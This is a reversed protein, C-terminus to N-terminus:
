SKEGIVFYDYLGSARDFNSAIGHWDVAFRSACCGNRVSERFAFVNFYFEVAVFGVGVTPIENKEFPSRLMVM